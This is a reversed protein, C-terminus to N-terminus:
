CCVQVAPGRVVGDVRRALPADPLERLEDALLADPFGQYAVPRLFRGIAATGVSTTAGSTSAPYPGGHQQAHTVAVGTPWENWLLRGARDALARVLPRVVPEDPEGHVAATLQGDIARAFALLEADDHWTAVVAAPGFIERFSGPLDALLDAVTTLHLSPSPRGNSEPTAGLPETRAALVSRAEHFAREIADSLMPAAAPLERARLGVVLDSDDPVLLVGPKTCFQGAGLTFSAVFGDLVQDGRLRAAARTVFVPNVSGLEGYFPIPDRRACALDFLARGVETSGTFACAKIAPHQVASRGAALGHVLGFVGDPAGAKALAEIVVAATADSLRPHGHHAKVVVPCGAALASASDGGAVSFAFPFNGAPFVLVPGLPQAGRRLDPRPVGMPWHPDSHDIRLDLHLGEAVEDALLRLQFSTRAVEGNLRTPGLATEEEAIAVLQGAAAGLGDAVARLAHARDRRPTWAWAEAASQAARLTAELKQDTTDNM